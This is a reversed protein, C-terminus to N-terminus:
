VKIKIGNIFIEALDKKLKEEDLQGKKPIWLYLNRLASLMSFLIVEVDIPKIDQAAIGSQIIERFNQEYENRLKLYYELSTELHNWDTNLTALENPHNKAIDIHLEILMKLQEVSTTQVDLVTQMGSTFKEAINLIIHNLIDQKSSIHNYLSAAKINLAKAIDRMSVATFGKEKFLQAAIIIIEKQRATM